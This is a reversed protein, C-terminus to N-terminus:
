SHVEAWKTEYFRTVGHTEIAYHHQQLLDGIAHIAPEATIKGTLIVTPEGYSECTGDHLVRSSVMYAETVNMNNTHSEIEDIRAIRGDDYGGVKLGMMCHFSDSDPVSSYLATAGLIRALDSASAECQELSQEVYDPRTEPWLMLELAREEPIFGGVVAIGSDAVYADISHQISEPSYDKELELRQLWPKTEGLLNM